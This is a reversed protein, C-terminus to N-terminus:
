ITQLSRNLEEERDLARYVTRVSINAIRAIDDRTLNPDKAMEVILKDRSEMIKLHDPKAKTSMYTSIAEQKRREYENEDFPFFATFTDNFAKHFHIPRYDYYKKGLIYVKTLKSSPLVLYSGRAAFRGEKPYLSILMDARHLPLNKDLDFVSNVNFIIFLQKSRIMSMMIIIARNVESMSSRSNVIMAEDFIIIDGPRTNKLREIFTEPTWKLNELTFDPADILRGKKEYWEKVKNNIYCGVQSSLTTKGLGSRGDVLFVASTKKNMVGDVYNDLNLALNKGLYFTKSRPKWFILM